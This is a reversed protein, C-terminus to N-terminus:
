TISSFSSLEVATMLLSYFALVVRFAMHAFVEEMLTLLAIMLFAASALDFAIKKWM